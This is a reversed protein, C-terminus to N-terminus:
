AREHGHKKKVLTSDFNKTNALIFYQYTGQTKNRCVINKEHKNKM